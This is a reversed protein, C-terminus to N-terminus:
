RNRVVVSREFCEIHIDSARSKVADRLLANVFRIIPADDGGSEDLLDLADIDEVDPLLGIERLTRGIMAAPETGWVDAMWRNAFSIRGQRDKVTIGIPVTDVVAELLARQEARAQEAEVADTINQAIGWERVLAGDVVEGVANVRLHVRSGDRHRDLAHGDRVRYGNVIFNRLYEHEGADTGLVDAARRGVLDAAHRYGYQRAMADNCEAIRAREYYLRVQEDAPLATPIPPEFEVRWIAEHSNDVFRRYRAEGEALATANRKAATHDTTVVLFGHPPQGPELLPAHLVNLYLLGTRGRTDVGRDALSQFDYWDEWAVVEGGLLREVQAPSLLVQESRIVNVQPKDPDPAGFLDISAPNGEVFCGDGDFLEMAIPSADFVQRWRQESRKLEHRARELETVDTSCTVVGTVRGDADRLPAKSVLVAHENGAADTLVDPRNRFVAGEAFVRADMERMRSVMPGDMEDLTRGLTQERQWGLLDLEARNVYRFRRSEDKVTIAVPALDFVTELLQRQRELEHRTEHEGTINRHIGWEGVLMGDRVIGSITGRMVQLRGERDPELTEFAGIRYGGAVLERVFEVNAPVEEPLMDLNTRGLMDRGHEFGYSRAFADNCEVVRGDRLYRRCQEEPPADIPVPPDFALRWIGDQSQDLFTRYLAESDRQAQETSRLDDVDIYVGIWRRPARGDGALPVGCERNWRWTGTAAHWLRYEYRYARGEGVAARWRAGEEDVDDPHVCRRWGEGAADAASQGTYRTWSEPPVRFGGDDAGVWVVADTATVLAHYHRDIEVLPAVALRRIAVGTMVALVPAALLAAAVGGVVTQLGLCLAAAAVGVGVPLGVDLLRLRTNSVSTM